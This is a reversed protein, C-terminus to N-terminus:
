NQGAETVALVNQAAVELTSTCPQGQKGLDTGTGMYCRGHSLPPRKCPAVSGNGRMQRSRGDADGSLPRSEGIYSAGQHDM